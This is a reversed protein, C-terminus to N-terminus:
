EARGASQALRRADDLTQELNRIAPLRVRTIARAGRETLLAAATHWAISSATPLPRIAAYGALFEEGLRVDGGRLAAMLSGIDAAPPGSAAQDFDILSVHAAHLFANKLHLDGHLLVREAPTRSAHALEAAVLLAAHRLRPLALGIRIAAHRIAPATSRAFRPVQPPIRLQHLRAVASGLRRLADPLENSPLDAIRSGASPAFFVTHVAHAEAVIRPLSNGGTSGTVIGRHLDAVRRMAEEDALVKAFAVTEGADNLCALVASKEPAYGVLESTTWGPIQSRLTEDPDLVRRVANLRRDNPFAWFAAGLGPLTWDASGRTASSALRFAPFTRATVIMPRERGIKYVVRLSENPHYKIRVTRIAAGDLPGLLGALHPRMGLADLLRDRHPVASDEALQMIM